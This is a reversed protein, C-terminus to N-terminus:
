ALLDLPKHKKNLLEAEQSSLLAQDMETVTSSNHHKAQSHERGQWSPESFGGNEGRYHMEFTGATIQKSDLTSLFHPLQKQILEHALETEVSVVGSLIGNKLSLEIELGGLQEPNLMMRLSKTEGSRLLQAQQTWVLPLEQVGASKILQPSVSTGESRSLHSPQSGMDDTITQDFTLKQKAQDASKSHIGEGVSRATLAAESYSKQNMHDKPDGANEDTNSKLNLALSEEHSEATESTPHAQSNMLQSKLTKSQLLQEPAAAESLADVVKLAELMAADETSEHQLTTNLLAQMMENQSANVTGNGALQPETQGTMQLTEHASSLNQISLDSFAGPISLVPVPTPVPALAAHDDTTVAANGFVTKLLAISEPTVQTTSSGQQSSKSLFNLNATGSIREASLNEEAQAKQEGTPQANGTNQDQQRVELRQQLMGSFLVAEAGDLRAKGAGTKSSKESQPPVSSRNVATTNM